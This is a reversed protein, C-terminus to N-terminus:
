QEFVKRVTTPRRKIVQQVSTTCKEAAGPFEDSMQEVSRKCYTKKYKEYAKQVSTEFKNYVEQLKQHVPRQEGSEGFKGLPATKLREAPHSAVQWVGSGRSPSGSRLSRAPGPPRQALRGSHWAPRGARDPRPKPTWHAPTDAPRFAAWCFSRAAAGKRINPPYSLCRERALRMITIGIVAQHTARNHVQQVTTQSKNCM